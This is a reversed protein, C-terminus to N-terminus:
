PPDHAPGNSVVQAGLKHDVSQLHGAPPSLRGPALGHHVGVPSRLEPELPRRLVEKHLPQSPFTVPTNPSPSLFAPSATELGDVPQADHADGVTRAPSRSPNDLSSASRRGSTELRRLVSTGHLHQALLWDPAATLASGLESLALLDGDEAHELPRARGGAGGPETSSRVRPYASRQSLYRCAPTDIRGAARPMGVSRRLTGLDGLCAAVCSTPCRRSRPRSRTM